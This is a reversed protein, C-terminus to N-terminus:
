GNIIIREKQKRRGSSTKGIITIMWAVLYSLSGIWVICMVFTLPFIRNNKTNRCDPIAVRFILHIPWILLWTFQAFCSKEWPYHLLSYREEQPPQKMSDIQQQSSTTATPTSEQAEGDIEASDMGVSTEVVEASGKKAVSLKSALSPPTDSLTSLPINTELATATNLSDNNVGGNM